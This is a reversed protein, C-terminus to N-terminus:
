NSNLREEIREVIIDTVDNGYDIEELSNGDGNRFEESDLGHENLWEEIEKTELALAKQMKAIRHMKDKIYKPVRKKSM